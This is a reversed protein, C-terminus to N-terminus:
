HFDNLIRQYGKGAVTTVIYRGDGSSTKVENWPLPNNRGKARYLKGSVEDYKFLAKAEEIQIM